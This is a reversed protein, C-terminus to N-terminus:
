KSYRLQTISLATTYLDEITDETLTLADAAKYRVYEDATWYSFPKAALSTTPLVLSGRYKRSFLDHDLHMLVSATVFESNCIAIEKTNPIHQIFFDTM